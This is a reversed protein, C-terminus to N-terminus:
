SYDYTVERLLFLHGVVITKVVSKDPKSYEIDYHYRGFPLRITDNHLISIRVEPYLIERVLVVDKSYDDRVTLTFIDGMSFEPPVFEAGDKIFRLLIDETDGRVLKIDNM